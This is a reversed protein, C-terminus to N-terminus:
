WMKFTKKMWWRMEAFRLATVMVAQDGERFQAHRALTTM